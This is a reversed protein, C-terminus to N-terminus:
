LILTAPAHPLPKQVWEPCSAFLFLGSGPTGKFFIDGTGERMWFHRVRHFEVVEWFQVM